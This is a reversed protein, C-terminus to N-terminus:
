GSRKGLLLFGLEILLIIVVLMELAFSRSTHFQDIMFSYAQSAAALKDEILKRYDPVGIRAAALRYLRSAYMDSLFKVSNDLRETLERVEVLITNLRKADRALTWHRLFSGRGEQLSQYAQALVQSLLDDYHRLELLQVNTYELLRLTPAAGESTDYVLSANWGAVLLDCPYYSIAGRLVEAREDASLLANETRILQTIQPGFQAILDVAPMPGDPGQLPNLHIVCYDERLRKEYPNSFAAHSKKVATDLCNEAYREVQQASVWRSTKHVLEEWSLSYNMSCIVGIVGSEHYHVSAELTSGDQLNYSPLAEAVTAQGFEMPQLGGERLFAAQPKTASLRDLQIRDSVNYLFYLLMSGTCANSQQGGTIPTDNAM